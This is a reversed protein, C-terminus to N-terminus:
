RARRRARRHEIVKMSILTEALARQGAYVLGARGDLVGGKAILCHALVAPLALFPVRRLRDPWGLERWPSTTLKRAEEDAYRRQAALWRGFGKRDDHAITAHLEQVDGSQLTVRYCHGDQRFRALERRFLVVSAPYLSGRLPVGDVCYRFRVRYGATTARPALQRLEDVLEPSLVYDADLALVWEGALADLGFNWQSAFDDFTRALVRVNSRQRLLALTGDASHSDVVVIERAWALPALTRELNSEENWTLLLPTIRDLM